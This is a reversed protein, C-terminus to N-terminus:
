KKIQFPGFPDLPAWFPGLHDFVSPSVMETGKPGKQAVKSRTKLVLFLRFIITKKPCGTIENYDNLM